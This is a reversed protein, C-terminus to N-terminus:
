KESLIHVPEWEPPPPNEICHSIRQLYLQYLSSPNQHELSQITKQADVFARHNYLDIGQHFLSVEQQLSATPTGICLPQYIPVAQTKGKVCVTDLHRCFITEPLKKHTEESIIVDVGYHKTLGEIRSALNVADGLVTYDFRKESGFNGASVIGTNLGIGTRAMIGGQSWRSFFGDLAEQVKLAASVAKEAQAEDELPTGWIAMVADGIYKDVLGGHDMIIDSIVTLYANMFAGLQDPPMKESLTTFGRIDSFFITVERKEVNLSLKKPDKMLQNVVSPAVYLSFAGKIFKRHAGEHFYNTTNVALFLLTLASLPFSIGMMQNNLFFFFHNGAVISILMGLAALSGSLPPLWILLFTLLLGGGVILTYTFGVETLRDYTFADNQIINDIVTAHVEVGPFISSFPTAVFDMIGAASSGILVHRNKIRNKADGRMADAASIFPFTFSPGRFNVTIQGRTDTPILRHGLRLGRLPKEEHLTLDSVEVTITDIGEGLRFMELALSSYPRQNLSILLPVQRITGSPDPFVNFFGETASMAVEPINLVPRYAKILNIQGWNLSPPILQFTASPFPTQNEDALGDHKFLFPYGAVTNGIAMAQGLQVDHDWSPNEWRKIFDSDKPETKFLHPHKAMYEKPTTRDRESFVMDFGVSKAGAQTLTQLLQAVTQRPWPWQGFTALSEEDIDVIVVAEATPQTGRIRFMEDFIRHDLAVFFSPKEMGFHYSVLCSLFIVIIGTKLPTWELFNM